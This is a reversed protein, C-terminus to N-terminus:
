PKAGTWKKFAAVEFPETGDASMLPQTVGSFSHFAQLWGEFDEAGGTGEMFKTNSPACIIGFVLVAGGDKAPILDESGRKVELRSRFGVVNFARASTLCHTTKTNYRLVAQKLTQEMQKDM